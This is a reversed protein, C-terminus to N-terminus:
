SVSLKRITEALLRPVIELSYKLELRETMKHADRGAPGMNAVPIDLKLLQELPLSYVEGWAPMNESLAELAERNGEFGLFSLDTIGGFVEKVSVAGDESIVKAKAVMEEIINRLAREKANRRRNVRHPYYPPLFGVVIAPGALGSQDAVWESVRIAKERADTVSDLTKYFLAEGKLFAEKSGMKEVCKQVLESYRYVSGEIRGEPVSAGREKLAERTKEMQLIGFQLANRAIELSEEMVREPTRSDTLVNFFCVARAPLSVSYTGTRTECRLCAPPSLTDEGKGDIFAANGEFLSVVHSALLMANAGEAYDNVHTARGLCLFYPMIKGTTGTYYPRTPKEGATWFCPEGTLAAVVDLNESSLTNSFEAITGRMGVSDSEEDPVALFAINIALDECVAYARITEVFLALGAKMDMTGRGFLWNGSALDKAADEPLSEGTLAKTYADPSFALRSFKGETDVVDFHGTLLVTRATKKAARLLAWVAKRGLADGECTMEKVCLTNGEATKIAQLTELLFRAVRNEGEGQGSVSPISCLKKTLALVDEAKAYVEKDVVAECSDQM